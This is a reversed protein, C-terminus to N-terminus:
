NTLKFICRFYYPFFIFVLWATHSTLSAGREGEHLPVETLTISGPEPTVRGVPSNWLPVTSLSKRKGREQSSSRKPAARVEVGECQLEWEKAPDLIWLFNLLGARTWYQKGWPQYTNQKFWSREHRRGELSEQSVIKRCPAHLMNSEKVSGTTFTDVGASGQRGPFGRNPLENSRLYFSQKRTRGRSAM